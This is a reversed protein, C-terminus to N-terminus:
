GTTLSGFRSATPRSRGGRPRAGGSTWLGGVIAADPGKAIPDQMEEALIRMEECRGSWRAFHSLANSM